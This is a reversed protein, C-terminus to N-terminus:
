GTNAVPAARNRVVLWNLLAIAITAFLILSKSFDARTLLAVCIVTGLAPLAIGGPILFAAAAPQAKRLIPVCVCTAGYYFIRAVASLTVNWSFSGLVALIWILLAVVAISVHPTRFRPHVAGFAMPFDGFAAMAFSIRPLTLMNAGLFGYVSIIAGAAVLAAGVPGLIVRATDALPRVSNASDPLVSVVTLQLVVYLVAVILLGLFLSFAVDRRPDKAEGMPILASEYGGYIFVLLLMARLWSDADPPSGSALPGSVPLAGAIHPHTLVYSLGVTAVIVLPVLKAVTAINSLQAGGGVGRYNIVTLMGLLLTMVWFRPGPEPAAPWFEGLHTVLLNVAAACATLRALLILWGVQLGWFRGLAYRVYLYTGGTKTFQSGVEAYCAAIVAVALGALLVAWPSWKGLLGAIVSPLGFIASGVTSNIVLAVLSWRGIARVLQRASPEGPQETPQQQSPLM